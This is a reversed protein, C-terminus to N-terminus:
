EASPLDAPPDVEVWFWGRLDEAQFGTAQDHPYNALLEQQLEESLTEKAGHCVLCPPQIPIPLLVHLKGEPAAFAHPKGDAGAVTAEAWSPAANSPNRLKHSTRGIRIGALDASAATLAEPARLRCHEIAAVPGDTGMKQTLEGVLTKGIGGAATKARDLMLRQNADLDPIAVETYRLVTTEPESCSGLLLATFISLWPTHRQM